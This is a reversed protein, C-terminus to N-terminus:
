VEFGQMYQIFEKLDRWIRILICEQRTHNRHFIIKNEDMSLYTIDMKIEDSCHGRARKERLM